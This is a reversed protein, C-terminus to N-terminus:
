FIEVKIEKRANDLWSDFSIIKGKSIRSTVTGFSYYSDVLNYHQDFDESKITYIDTLQGTKLSVLAKNM